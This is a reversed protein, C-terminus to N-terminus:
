GLESGEGKVVALLKNVMDNLSEVQANLETSASSAEEATSANKQAGQDLTSFSQNMQSVGLSQEQTASSIESVLKAAKDSTNLIKELTIGAEKTISNGKKVRKVSEEILSSTEKAASACQQSLSRVEEAVVAFGKGVEGARAAEVAANLALLNTQFAVEEIVKIVKSVETSSENIEKMATIMKSIAINGQKASEKAENALSNAHRSNEANQKTMSSIEELTSSTEELSSAQESANTALFNSASSMETSAAAIQQAGSSLGEIVKNIPVNVFFQLVLLGCGFLCAGLIISYIQINKVQQVRKYAEQELLKVGKNMEVLLEINRDRLYKISEKCSESELDEAKLIRSINKKFPEWISNVKKIQRIITESQMPPLNSTYKNKGIPAKGGFLLAKLTTDFWALATEAEKKAKLAKNNEAKFGSKAKLAKNNEAKFGSKAKLAKNNGLKFGSKAKLAKNNGVKFESKDKIYFFTSKTMKQTLMRQRGAMNIVLADTKQRQAVISTQIFIAVLLILNIGMISGIKWSVSLKSLLRM